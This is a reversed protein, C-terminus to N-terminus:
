IKKLSKITISGNTKARCSLRICKSKLEEPGLKENYEEIIADITNQEITSCLKLNNKGEIVEIKCAGCSGALCGHPLEKGQELLNYYIPKEPNQLDYEEKSEDTNLYMIKSM